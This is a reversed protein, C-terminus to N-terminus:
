ETSSTELAEAAALKEAEIRAKEANFLDVLYAYKDFSTITENQRKDIYEVEGRNIRGDWHIAWEGAPVEFPVELGEGDVLIIQDQTIAHFDM